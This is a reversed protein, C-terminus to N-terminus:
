LISSVIDGAFDSFHFGPMTSFRVLSVVLSIVCSLITMLCAKFLGQRKEQDDMQMFWKIYYIVGLVIPTAAVGYLLAYAFNGSSGLLHICSFSLHVAYGVMGIGIGM